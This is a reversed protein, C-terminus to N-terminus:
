ALTSREINVHRLNNLFAYRDGWMGRELKSAKCHHHSWGSSKVEFDKCTLYYFSFSFSCTESLSLPTDGIIGCM